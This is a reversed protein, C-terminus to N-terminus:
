TESLCTFEHRLTAAAKDGDEHYKEVARCVAHQRAEEPTCRGTRCYRAIYEEYQEM